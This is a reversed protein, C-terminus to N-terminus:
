FARNIFKNFPTMQMFVKGLEEIFGDKMIQEDTVPHILAYSKFKLLEIEKFDAPFGKPPRKLKEGHINGFVDKFDPAEIIQKFEDIGYMVEDRVLKLIPSEPRYIGGGLFSSGPEIHIYYGAKGSKKGGPVIFAGMNTKYPMKNKSFRVDRYIRFVCKKAQQDGISPDFESIVQIAQNVFREMIEKADLYLQKNADFWDKNNNKGLESLFRIINNKEM